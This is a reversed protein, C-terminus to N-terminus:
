TESLESKLAKIKQKLRDEKTLVVVEKEEEEDDVDDVDDGSENGDNDNDNDDNKSENNHDNNSHSDLNDLTPCGDEEIDSNDGQSHHELYVKYLEIKDNVTDPFPIDRQVAMMRVKEVFTRIWSNMEYLSHTYAHSFGYDQRIKPGM